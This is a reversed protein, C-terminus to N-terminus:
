SQIQEKLEKLESIHENCLTIQRDLERRKKLVAMPDSLIEDYSFPVRKRTEAIKTQLDACRQSIRKLESQLEELASINEVYDAKGGLFEEVMYSLLFLEGWDNNRYATQVREWLSLAEAPLDPNLDPHLKRVIDRYLKKLKATEEETCKKAMFHSEAQKLKNQQKELQRLYERFEKEIIKQVEQAAIREGRNRAAQFIAIERKLRLIEVQSSFLEHEKKGLKFMYEAELNKGVINVLCSYEEVLASYTDRAAQLDGKAKEFEPSLALTGAPMVM